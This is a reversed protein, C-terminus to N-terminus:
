WVQGALVLPVGPVLVLAHGLLLGLLSVDVSEKSYTDDRGGKEIIVIM